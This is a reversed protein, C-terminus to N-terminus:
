TLRGTALYQVGYLLNREVPERYLLAALIVAVVLSDFQGWIASIIIAYPFFSWFTLAGLAANRQGTWRLVLAYLLAATLFDGLISPQKILFYLVFRNGGGMIEWLRYLEGLLAPWFPLYAASPLTSNLFAFSVGPVPEWFSVYPNMGNAVAHGTRIWVEVDYPNGTWFSFAERVLLGIM